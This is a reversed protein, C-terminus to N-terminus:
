TSAPGCLGSDHLFLAGLLLERDYPIHPTDAVREAILFQRMPPREMDGDTEGTAARLAKLAAAEAETTLLADAHRRTTGRIDRWTLPGASNAAGADIEVTQQEPNAESAM